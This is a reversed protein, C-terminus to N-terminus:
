ERLSMIESHRPRSVEFDDDMFKAWSYLVAIFGKVDRRYPTPDDIIASHLEATLKGFSVTENTRLIERLWKCLRTSGFKNKLEKPTLYDINLGLLEFDHVHAADDFDLRLLSEPTSFLLEHAWLQQVSQSVLQTIKDSWQQQHIITDDNAAALESKMQEFIEDNLWLVDNKLNSIKAQDAISAEFGVGFEINHRSNLAMGRSTLNASSVFIHGDVSYVKGHLDLSIGFPIGREKCIEYCSLDSANCVLDHKHWRSVISYNDHRALNLMWILAPEKTFASFVSVDNKSCTIADSLKTKFELSNLLM